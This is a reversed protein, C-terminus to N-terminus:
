NLCFDATTQRMRLKIEYTTEESRRVKKRAQPNKAVRGKRSLRILAMLTLPAISSAAKIVAMRPGKMVKPRRYTTMEAKNQCAGASIPHCRMLIDCANNKEMTAQQLVLIDKKAEPARQSAIEKEM